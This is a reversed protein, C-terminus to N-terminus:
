FNYIVIKFHTTFKCCLAPSPPIIMFPKPVAPVGGCGSCPPSPVEQAILIGPIVMSIWVSFIFALVGIRKIM